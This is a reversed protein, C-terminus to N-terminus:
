KYSVCCRTRKMWSSALLQDITIRKAPSAQFIKYLAIKRIKNIDHNVHRLEEFLYFQKEEEMEDLFSDYLSDHGSLAIKWLYHGLVMTCYVVGCSWCDVLRPDYENDQEFEEPAVYPESGMAGSQFHVQREWATQFVCSTGFDCIKLLGDPHFLINEPKLDCHAVGHDHMYKVGNLLQKMFCDAELPHLATGSKSKRTLLSYLDGSPCFEIVEIFRNEVEMLDLIKAINPPSRGKFKHTRSLSHGIIFESTIKTSFKEIQDSKRPKLEKVAFYMRNDRVFTPFPPIDNLTAPRSSVSVVGYAGQGITGISKGYLESFTSDSNETKDDKPPTKSKGSLGNLIKESLTNILELEDSSVAATPNVVQPINKLNNKSAINENTSENSEIDTSNGSHHNEINLKTKKPILSVADKFHSSHEDVKENVSVSSEGQPKPHGKFFGSFSFMSGMTRSLGIEDSNQVLSITKLTHEHTGNEYVKFNDTQLICKSEDESTHYSNPNRHYRSSKVASFSEAYPRGRTTQRSRGSERTDTSSISSSSEVKRLSNSKGINSSNSNNCSPIGRNTSGNRSLNSSSPSLVPVTKSSSRANCPVSNNRRSGHRSPQRSRDFSENRTKSKASSTHTPTKSSDLMADISFNKTAELFSGTNISTTRSRGRHRHEDESAADTSSNTEYFGQPKPFEIQDSTDGDDYDSIYSEQSNISAGRSPSLTFRASRQKLPVKSNSNSIKPSQLPSIDNVLNPNSRGSRSSQLASEKDMAIKSLTPSQESTPKNSKSSNIVHHNMKQVNNSNSDHSNSKFISKISESFSRARGVSSNLPAKDDVLGM